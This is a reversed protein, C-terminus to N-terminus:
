RQEAAGVRLAFWYMLLTLIYTTILPAFASGFWQLAVFFLVVTLGFKIAEGRYFAGIIAKPSADAPVAYVRIALYLGPVIAVVGGALAALAEHVGSFAWWLLASITAILIQGGIVITVPSRTKM